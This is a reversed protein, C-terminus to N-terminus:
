RARAMARARVRAKATKRPRRGGGEARRGGGEARRGGGEARRGRGEDVVPAAHESEGAIRVLSVQVDLSLLKCCAYSILSIIHYWVYM